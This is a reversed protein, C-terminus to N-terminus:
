SHSYFCRMRLSLRELSVAQAPSPPPGGSTDIRELSLVRGLPSPTSTADGLRHSKTILWELAQAMNVLKKYVPRRSGTVAVVCDERFM